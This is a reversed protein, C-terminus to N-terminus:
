SYFPLFQARQLQDCVTSIFQNSWPYAELFYNKKDLLFDKSFVSKYYVNWRLVSGRIMKTANRVICKKYTHNHQCATSSLLKVLTVASQSWQPFSTDLGHTPYYPNGRKFPSPILVCEVQRLMESVYEQVYDHKTCAFFGVPPLTSMFFCPPISEQINKQVDVDRLPNCFFKIGYGFEFILCLLEVPINKQLM